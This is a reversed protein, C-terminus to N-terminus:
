SVPSNDRELYAVAAGVGDEEALRAGVEKARVSVQPDLVTRLDETLRRTDLKTFPLTDGIGLSRCRAGWFPQDALVSCILTPTGATLSAATTGAGGHHVAAACRPLLSQHDVEDVIFLSEDGAENLESWGAAVIGRAGLNNLTARITDLMAGPDLVPMSGFGFFVPPPGAELWSGLEAPIGVDGFQARLEPWPQLFGLPRLGPPWDAPAAFLAQSYGELSPVRGSYGDTWFRWTPPALDLKRHVAALDERGLRWSMRSPLEHAFRTRTLPGLSRQPLLASTYTRSPAHPFLHIPVAPIGRAKGIARCLVELFIGCVILDVSETAELVVQQLEAMFAEQEKFYWRFFTTIRGSALMREAQETRLMAQVDCPLARFRLGAAKVMQEGNRPIILEVEHGRDALARGLCVHPQTDGRTGLAVLAIKKMKKM